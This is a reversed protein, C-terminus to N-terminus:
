VFLTQFEGRHTGTMSDYVRQAFVDKAFVAAPNGRLGEADKKRAILPLPSQSLVSLIEGSREKRLALTRLYLPPIKRAVPLASLVEKETIDLLNACVIRSVRARTYRPSVAKDLFEEYDPYACALASLLNELGEKCDPRAALLKKPTRVLSAMAVQGFPFPQAKKIDELVFPPLNGKLKRGAKKEYLNARIASASSYRKQLKTDKYGEGIRPLPIPRISSQLLLLSRCYEIGLINNPSSLFAGDLEPHRQLLAANRARIYSVGKGIKEKLVTQFAADEHLMLNATSLFDESSGRECGFVLHTVNPITSLIGVAGRAFLEASATAFLVPLELVADAGALIAHKARTYKDFVAGEGRQTFNGSMVCLLADCGSLRKAEQMLYAHGNHFPNYECIIACINM